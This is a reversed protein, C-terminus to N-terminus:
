RHPSLGRLGAAASHRLSKPSALAANLPTLRYLRHLRTTRQHTHPSERQQTPRALAAAPSGACRASAEGAGEGRGRGIATWALLRGVEAVPRVQLCADAAENHLM